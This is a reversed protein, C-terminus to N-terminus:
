TDTDVLIYWRTGDCLAVACLGNNIAAGVAPEGARSFVSITAATANRVGIFIKVARGPRCTDTAKPLMVRSSFGSGTFIICRDHPQASYELGDFTVVPITDDVVRRRFEDEIDRLGQTVGPDKGLRPGFVNNGV